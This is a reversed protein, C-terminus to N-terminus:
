GEKQSFIVESVIRKLYEDVTSNLRETEAKLLAEEYRAETEGGRIAELYCRKAFFYDAISEIVDKPTM